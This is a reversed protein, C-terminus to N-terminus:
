DLYFFENSGLLTMCVREWRSLKNAAAVEAPDSAALFAGLAQAERDSPPRSFALEFARRVRAADDKAAVDDQLRKAFAKAQEVM